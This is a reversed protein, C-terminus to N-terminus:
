RGEVQQGGDDCWVKLVMWVVSVIDEWWSLGVLPPSRGTVIRGVCEGRPM